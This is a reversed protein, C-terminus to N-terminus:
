QSAARGRARLWARFQSALIGRRGPSVKMSRPFRGAKQERWITTPSLNSLESVLKLPLVRDEAPDLFEAAEKVVADRESDNM